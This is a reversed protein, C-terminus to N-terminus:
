QNWQVYLVVGSTELAERAVGRFWTLYEVLYAAGVGEDYLGDGVQVAFEEPYTEAYTLITSVDVLIREIEEGKFLFACCNEPSNWPECYMFELHRIGFKEVLEIVAAALWGHRSSHISLAEESRRGVGEMLDLAQEISQLDDPAESAPVVVAISPYDHAM